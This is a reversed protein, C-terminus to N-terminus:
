VVAGGPMAPVREEQEGGQARQQEAAEEAGLEPLRQAAAADASEAELLRPRRGRLLLGLLDDLLDQLPARQARPEAVGELLRRLPVREEGRELHNMEGIDGRSRRQPVRQEGRQLHYM